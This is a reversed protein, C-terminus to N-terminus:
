VTATTSLKGQWPVRGTLQEGTQFKAASPKFKGLMLNDIAPFNFYTLM